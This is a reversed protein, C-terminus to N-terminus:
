PEAGAAADDEDAIFRPRRCAGDYACRACVRDDPPMPAVLGSRVSRVVALALRVAGADGDAMADRWAKAWASPPAYSPSLEAFPVYMGEVRAVGPTLGQAAAAARAYLPAQFAGRALERPAQKVTAGGRKYDIVRVGSGEHAVDVRDIKGLLRLSAGETGATDDDGDGLELAPWSGERGDGFAQEAFAFDWEGDALSWALVRLVDDRMQELAVRRVRSAAAERALVRDAAELAVARITGDDRPRASWLHASARFAAALADHVLTGSQRADPTDSPPEEDRAGLVHSAFGLFACRAFRELQTVPLTATALGLAGTARAAIADGAAAAARLDGVLAPDDRLAAERGAGSGHLAERVREVRARRAAEPALRAREEDSGRALAAVRAEGESLPPHRGLAVSSWRSTPAGGRDLWAVVPAPAMAEGDEGAARWVLVVREARDVAQALAALDVASRRAADPLAHAPDVAAVAAAFAESLLPDRASAGPLVGENADLVILCAVREGSLEALRAVRVAGARGAGPPPAGAELARVLEHRFAESSLAAGSVSLEAAAQEYQGLAVALVEWAHADAALAVLEVRALGVAVDDRALTVKADFGARAPFGLESWLARATTVHEGRKTAREVSWLLEGMRRALAAAEEGGGARATAELCFVPDPGAVTPTRELADALRELLRRAPRPDALGTLKRADLYRSRVLRAVDQRPLGRSALAHADLATSVAGAAIPAPGRPDYAPVRAETLASRLPALVEEDVRPVGIVIADLPVGRALESVVVDVAARAQARAGDAQRLEVRAVTAVPPPAALRLDGLVPEIPSPLPPEDLLRGVDDFVVELPDRDRAADLPVDFTSAFMPLEVRCGGGGGGGGSAARRLAQDLARWWAAEAADWAVVGRAVIREAGAAARVASPDARAIAVALLAGAARGDERGAARLAEDLAVFARRLMRARRAVSGGRARAEVRALCAADIGAARLAGIAADIADVTRLWAISGARAVPALLEDDWAVARLAEALALRTAEPSALKVAPALDDLLRARLAHRTEAVVHEQALREVHRESPVVLRERM